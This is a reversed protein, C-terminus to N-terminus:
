GIKRNYKLIYTFLLTMLDDNATSKLSINNLYLLLEKSCMYGFFSFYDIYLM